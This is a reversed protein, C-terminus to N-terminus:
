KLNKRTIEQMRRRAPAALGPMGLKHSVAAILPDRLGFKALRTRWILRKNRAWIALRELRGPSLPPHGSTEYGRRILLNRNGSHFEADSPQLGRRLISSQKQIRALWFSTRLSIEFTRRWGGEGCSRPRGAGSAPLMHRLRVM